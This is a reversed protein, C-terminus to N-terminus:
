AAGRESADRRWFEGPSVGVARKFAKSFLSRPGHRALRANGPGFQLPADPGDAHVYMTGELVIHFGVSRECPFRLGRDATVHRTDLLRRALGADRFLENLLDITELM